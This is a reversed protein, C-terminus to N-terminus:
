LGQILANAVQIAVDTYGDVLDVSDVQYGCITLTVNIAKTAYSNDMDTDLQYSLKNANTPLVVTQGPQIISAPTDYKGDSNSDVVKTGDLNYWEVVSVTEDNGSVDHVMDVTLKLLVYSKIHNEDNAIKGKVVLSDGPMFYTYFDSPSDEQGLVNKVLREESDRTIYVALDTDNTTENIYTLELIGSKASGVGEVKQSFYAYCTGFAIAASLSFCCVCVFVYKIINFPPRNLKSKFFNIM